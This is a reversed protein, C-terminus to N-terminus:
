EIFDKLDSKTMSRIISRLNKRARYLKVKVNSSTMGLMEAIQRVALDELYYLNILAAETKELRHIAAQIIQKRDEMITEELPTVEEKLLDERISGIEAIPISKRRTRDIAKSYAIKMLWNPFKKHDNLKGLERFGKVFVDQAVEEAEERHKIIRYCLTFVRNQYKGILKEYAQASHHDLIEKIYEEDM